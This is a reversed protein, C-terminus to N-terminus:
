QLNEEYRVVSAEERWDALTEQLHAKQADKFFQAEIQDYVTSLPVKECMPLDGAYYLIAYGNDIKYATSIEGVTEFALARSRYDESFRTSEASIYNVKQASGPKLTDLVQDFPIEGSLLKQYISEVEDTLLAYQDDIMEQADGAKGYKKMQAILPLVADDFLFEAKKILKENVPRYIIIDGALLAAEYDNVNADFAQKQKQYLAEYQANIAEESERPCEKYVSQFLADTLAAENAAKQLSERTEGAAKLIVDIQSELEDSSLSPYSKLVYSGVTNLATQYKDDAAKQVEGELRIGRTEIQNLLIQQEILQNLIELRAHLKKETVEDETLDQGLFNYMVDTTAMEAEVRSRLIKM